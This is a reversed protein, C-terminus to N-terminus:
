FYSNTEALIVKSKMGIRIFSIKFMPILSSHFLIRNGVRWERTGFAGESSNCEPSAGWTITALIVHM